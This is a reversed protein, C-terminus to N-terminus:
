APGFSVAVSQRFPLSPRKDDVKLHHVRVAVAFNCPILEFCATRLTHHGIRRGSLLYSMATPREGETGTLGTPPGVPMDLWNNGMRRTSPLYPSVYPLIAISKSPPKLKVLKRTSTRATNTNTTHNQSSM